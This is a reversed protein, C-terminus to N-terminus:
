CWVDPQSPRQWLHFAEPLKRQDVKSVNALFSTLVFVVESLDVVDKLNKGTLLFSLDWELHLVICENESIKGLSNQLYRCILLAFLANTLSLPGFGNFKRCFQLSVMCRVTQLGNCCRWLHIFLNSAYPTTGRWRGTKEDKLLLHDLGVFGIWTIWVDFQPLKLLILHFHYEKM